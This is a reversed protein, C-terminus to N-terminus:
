PENLGAYNAAYFEIQTCKKCAYVFWVLQHTKRLRDSRAKVM